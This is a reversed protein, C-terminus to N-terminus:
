VAGTDAHDGDRESLRDTWIEDEKLDAIKMLAHLGNGNLRFPAERRYATVGQSQPWKVGDAM